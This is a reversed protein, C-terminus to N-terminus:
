FESMVTQKHQFQHEVVEKEMKTGNKNWKRIAEHCRWMREFFGILQLQAPRQLPESASQLSMLVELQNQSIICVSKLIGTEGDLDTKLIYFNLNCSACLLLSM